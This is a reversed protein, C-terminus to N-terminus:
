LAAHPASGPEQLPKVSMLLPSMAFAAFPPRKLPTSHPLLCTVPGAGSQLWAARRRLSQGADAVVPRPKM